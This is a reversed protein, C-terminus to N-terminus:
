AIPAPFLENFLETIVEQIKMYNAKEPTRRYPVEYCLPILLLDTLLHTILFSVSHAMDAARAVNSSNAQPLSVAVCAAVAVGVGAIISVECGLTLSSSGAVTM